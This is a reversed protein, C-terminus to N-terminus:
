KNAYDYYNVFELPTTVKVKGQYKKIIGYDCTIFIDANAKEASALHLADIPSIGTKKALNEAQKKINEDVNWNIQELKLIM